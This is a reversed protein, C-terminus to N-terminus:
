LKGPTYKFGGLSCPVDNIKMHWLQQKEVCKTNTKFHQMLNKIEKIKADANTHMIVALDKMLRFDARMADTLGTLQCLEPILAVENGTRRDKNILLPQNMDSINENYRTRYYEQYSTPTGNKDFTTSPSQAFDVRDIRYTKQNYRTVVTAGSLAEQIAAQGDQRRQEAKDRLDNMWSLCNDTRVVKFCVDINLLVGSEKMTLRTDFGPWVKINHAALNHANAQNFSKQGITEFKLSRMMSNFFIKLFNMHDRDTKEMVQVWEITVTYNVGDHEATYQPLEAVKKLSFVCLGYDIFFELKEKIADRCKKLVEKRLSRSNDPIEPEFKVTYKNVGQVDNSDFDISFYNSYLKIPKGQANSARSPKQPFLTTATSGSASVM